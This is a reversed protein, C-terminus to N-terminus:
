SYGTVRASGESVAVGNQDAAVGFGPTLDM